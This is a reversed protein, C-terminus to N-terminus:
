APIEAILRAVESAARQLCELRDDADDPVREMVLDTARLVRPPTPSVGKHTFFITFFREVKGRDIREIRERLTRVGEPPRESCGLLVVRMRQSTLAGAALKWILDMTDPTARADDISDIVLWCTRDCDEVQESIWTRLETNWRPPQAQQPPMREPNLALQSAIERALQKPPLSPALDALDIYVIVNENPDGVVFTIFELTFSRGSRRQGEVALASSGNGAVMQQVLQRLELRDVFAQDRAVFCTEFPDPSQYWGVARLDALVNAGVAALEVSDNADMAEEVLEIERRRSEAWEVLRIILVERTANTPAIDAISVGLMAAVVEIDSLLLAELLAKLVRKRHRGYGAM